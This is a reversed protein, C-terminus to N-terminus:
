RKWEVLSERLNLGEKKFVASKKSLIFEDEKEGKEEFLSVPVGHSPTIPEKHFFPIDEETENGPGEQDEGKRVKVEFEQCPEGQNRKEVGQFLLVEEGAKKESVKRPEEGKQADEVPDDHGDM